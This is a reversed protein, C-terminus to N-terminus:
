NQISSGYLDFIVNMSALAESGSLPGVDGREIGNIFHDIIGSSLSGDSREKPICEEKITEGNELHVTIGFHTEGLILTGKEGYFITRHDQIPNNWSVQITGLTGSMMKVIIVAQDDVEGKKKFRHSFMQTSKIEQDLIWQLLDIKHIALDGVVGFYSQEKDYFWNKEGEVSWYEPGPHQFSTSFGVVKGLIDSEILEKARIHVPILRQNHGVMLLKNSRSATEVMKMAESQNVAMPKEVLVHKNALLAQKAIKAHLSNPTCISVADIEKNSLLTKWDSYIYPIKFTNGIEQARGINSDAVAMVICNPNEHYEPLHRTQSIKGCGIIGVKIPKNM